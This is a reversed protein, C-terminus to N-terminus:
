CRRPKRTPMSVRHKPAEKARKEPGVVVARGRAVARGGGAARGGGVARGEGVARGGAVARVWGSAREVGECETGQVGIIGESEEDGEAGVRFGPQVKRKRASRPVFM